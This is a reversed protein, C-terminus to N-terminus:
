CSTRCCTSGVARGERLEIQGVRPPHRGVLKTRGDGEENEKSRGVEVFWGERGNTKMGWRCRRSREEQKGAVITAAVRDSVSESNGHM